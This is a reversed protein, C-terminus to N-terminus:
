SRALAAAMETVAGVTRWNRMTTVTGLTRDLWDTTIKTKAAGVAFHVYLERGRLVMRDGPSRDPDLRAAREPTPFDALFAVYGQGASEPGFPSGAAMVAQLESLSRSVVPARFGFKVEIAEAVAACLHPLASGEVLCVANGSQIYTAVRTGGADAVIQAFEKM